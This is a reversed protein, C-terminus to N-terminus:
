HLHEANVVPLVDPDNKAVLGHKAWFAQVLLLYGGAFGAGVLVLDLAYFGRYENIGMAPQIIWTWDMWNGVLVASCIVLLAVPNTRVKQSMLGLFPLPWRVVAEIWYQLGWGHQTRLIYWYTEEDLNAYYILMFQSFGIYACFCSWAVMWTGLDHLLHKPLHEKMPGRRLWLVLLLLVCLFTQMASAFCYVGWMTSFWNVHLSLLMDWVFFTLSLAFFMVYAIAWPRHINRICGGDVDQKLSIGVLKYRLWLWGTIFVTGTLLLRYWTMFGSKSGHYVHFLSTHPHGEVDNWSLNVWDYLYSGGLFPLALLFFVVATIPLGSSMSELLRRLPAVWRAGGISHVCVFFLAALSLYTPILMGQLLISWAREAGHNPGVFFAGIFGIVGLVVMVMSAMKLRPATFLGPDKLETVHHHHSM